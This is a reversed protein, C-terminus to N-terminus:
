ACLRSADTVFMNIDHIFKARTFADDPDIREPLIREILLLKSASSMAARCTRLIAIAEKDDWDQIVGKM